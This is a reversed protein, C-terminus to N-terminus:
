GVIFSLPQQETFSILHYNNYSDLFIFSLFNFRLIFKNESEDCAKNMM